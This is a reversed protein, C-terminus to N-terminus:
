LSQFPLYLLTKLLKLLNHDYFAEVSTAFLRRCHHQITITLRARCLLQQFLSFSVPGSRSDFEPGEAGLASIMGRSWASMSM